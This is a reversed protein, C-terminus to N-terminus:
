SYLNDRSIEVKQKWIGKTKKEYLNSFILDGVLYRHTKTGHAINCYCKVVLKITKYTPKCVTNM